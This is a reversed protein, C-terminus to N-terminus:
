ARNEGSTRLLNSSSRRCQRISYRIGETDGFANLSRFEGNEESPKSSQTGVGLVVSGFLVALLMLCHRAMVIDEWQNM